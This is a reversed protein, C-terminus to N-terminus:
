KLEPPIDLIRSASGAIIRVPRHMTPTVYLNVHDTLSAYADPFQRIAPGIMGTELMLEIAEDKPAIEFAIGQWSVPGEWYGVDSFLLYFAPIQAQGKYARVYLRSLRSHYHHIQCRYVMPSKLNFVPM